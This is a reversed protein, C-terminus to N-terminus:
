TISKSIMKLKATFVCYIVINLARAHSESMLIATPSFTSFIVDNFKFTAFWGNPNVQTSSPSFITIVMGLKQEISSLLNLDNAYDSDKKNKAIAPIKTQIYHSLKNNEAAKQWNNLVSTCVDNYIEANSLNSNSVTEIVKDTKRHHPLKGERDFKIIKATM